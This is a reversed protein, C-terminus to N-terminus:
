QVRCSKAVQEGFFIVAARAALLWRRREGPDLDALVQEATSGAPRTMGASAELIRVALEGAPLEVAYLLSRVDPKQKRM